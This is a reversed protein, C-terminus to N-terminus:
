RPRYRELSVFNIHFHHDVSYLHLRWGVQALQADIVAYTTMKRESLRSSIEVEYVDVSHSRDDSRFCDPHMGRKDFPKGGLASMLNNLEERFGGRSAPLATVLAQVIEEHTAM